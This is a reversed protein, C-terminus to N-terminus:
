CKNGQSALWGFASDLAVGTAFAILPNTVALVLQTVALTIVTFLTMVFLVADLATRCQLGAELLSYIFKAIGLYQVIKGLLPLKSGAVQAYADLLGYFFTLLSILKGVAVFAGNEGGGIKYAGAGTEPDLIVYGVQSSGYFDIPREHVTVTKGAAASNRIETVIDQPLILNSVASNVNAATINWIKQGEAAALQLAKVASVGHAPNEDTSFMQEPVLHEMASMRAGQARNFALWKDNDNAEDVQYNMMRDVDMTLGGLQVNRPIGYWYLPTVDTKFLGYSPARYTIMGASRAQIDDQLNNLAMYSLITAYLTDGVLGQKTLADYNEAEINAKTAELSQKLKEAQEPAIGQLDLAIAQYEGVVPENRSSSWGWTAEKFGSDAILETGM